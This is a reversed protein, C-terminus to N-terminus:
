NDHMEGNKNNVKIIMEELQNYMETIVAQQQLIHDKLEKLKENHVDCNVNLQLMQDRVENLTGSNVTSNVKNMRHLPKTVKCGDCVYWIHDNELMSKNVNRLGSCEQDYHYWKLCFECSIGSNVVTMCHGCLSSESDTDSGASEVSEKEKSLNATAMDGRKNEEEGSYSINLSQCLIDTEKIIKDYKPSKKKILKREKKKTSTKHKRFM